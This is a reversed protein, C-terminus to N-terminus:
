SLDYLPASNVTESLLLLKQSLQLSLVIQVSYKTSNGIKGDIRYNNNKEPLCYCLLDEGTKDTM